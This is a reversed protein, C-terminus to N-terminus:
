KLGSFARDALQRAKGNARPDSADVTLDIEYGPLGRVILEQGIVKGFYPDEPTSEGYKPVRMIIAFPKGNALRWELRTKREDFDTNLTALSISTDTGKKEAAIHVAAASGYIRIQYGALGRCLSADDTGGEGRLIKCGAGLSTYASTFRPATQATAAISVIFLAASAFLLNTIKM